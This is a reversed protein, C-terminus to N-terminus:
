GDGSRRDNARAFELRAAAAPLYGSSRDLVAVVDAINFGRRRQAQKTIQIQAHKVIPFEAAVFFANTVVFALSAANQLM